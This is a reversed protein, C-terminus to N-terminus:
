FQTFNYTPYTPAVTPLFIVPVNRGARLITDNTSSVSFGALPSGSLQYDFPLGSNGFDPNVSTTGGADENVPLPSGNVLSTGSQWQSFDLFTWASSPNGPVGCSAAAAGGPPKTLM